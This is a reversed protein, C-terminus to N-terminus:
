AGGGKGFILLAAAILLAVVCLVYDFVCGDQWGLEAGFWAFFIRLSERHAKVFARMGGGGEAGQGLADGRKFDFAEGM